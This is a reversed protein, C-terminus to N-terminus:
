LYVTPNYSSSFLSYHDCIARPLLIKFNDALNLFWIWNNCINLYNFNQIVFCKLDLHCCRMWKSPCLFTQTPCVMTVSTAVKRQGLSLGCLKFEGTAPHLFMHFGGWSNLVLLNLNCLRILKRHKTCSFRSCAIRGLDYLIIIVGSITAFQKTVFNYNGRDKRV